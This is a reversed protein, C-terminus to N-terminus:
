VRKIHQRYEEGARPPYQDPHRLMRNVMAFYSTWKGDTNASHSDRRIRRYVLPEEIVVLSHDKLARAFYELDQLYLFSESFLVATEFVDRRIIAAQPPVEFWRLVSGDVKPFYTGQNTVTMPCTVSERRDRLERESPSSIKEDIM